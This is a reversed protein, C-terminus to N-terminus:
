RPPQSLEHQRIRDIDAPTLDRPEIDGRRASAEAAEGTAPAEVPAAGLGASAVLDVVLLGYERVVVFSARRNGQNPDLVEVHFESGVQTVGTVVLPVQQAIREWPMALLAQESEQTLLRRCGDEDHQQLATQFALFAAGAAGPQTQPDACAVAVTALVLLSPRPM